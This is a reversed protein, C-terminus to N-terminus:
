LEGVSASSHVNKGDTEDQCSEGTTVRSLKYDIYSKTEANGPPAIRINAVYVGETLAAYKGSAQFTWTTFTDIEGWKTPVADTENALIAKVKPINRLLGKGYIGIYQEDDTRLLGQANLTFLDNEGDVVNFDDMHVTTANVCLECGEVSTLRGVANGNSWVGGTPLQGMPYLSFIRLQFVLAPVLANFGCQVM